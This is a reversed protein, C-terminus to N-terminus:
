RARALRERLRDIRAQQREIRARQTAITEQQSAIEADRAWIERLQDNLAVVCQPSCGEGGAQTDNCAPTPPPQEAMAAPAPGFILALSAFTAALTKRM